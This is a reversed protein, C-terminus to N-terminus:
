ASCPAHRGTRLVEGVVHYVQWSARLDAGSGVEDVARAFEDGELQGDALASVWELSESGNTQKM